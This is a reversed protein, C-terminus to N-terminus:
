AVVVPLRIDSGDNGLVVSAENTSTQGLCPTM